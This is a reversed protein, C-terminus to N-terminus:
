KMLIVVHAIKLIIKELKNSSKIKTNDIHYYTKKNQDFKLQHKTFYKCTLFMKSLLTTVSLFTLLVHYIYM